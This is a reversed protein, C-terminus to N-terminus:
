GEISRDQTQSEPPAPLPMWHTPVDLDEGSDSIWGRRTCSCVAMPHFDTAATEGFYGLIWTGFSATEIDQWESM